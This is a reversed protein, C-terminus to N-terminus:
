DKGNTEKKWWEATRKLGDVLGTMPVKMTDNSRSFSTDGVRKETYRPKRNYDFEKALYAFITNVSTPQQYGIDFTGRDFNKAIFVLQRVFDKVYTYDKAQEGDGFIQVPENKSMAACFNRVLPGEVIQGEGFVNFPRVNLVNERKQTMCEALYKSMGYPSNPEKVCSSTINVLKDYKCENLLRYTGYVNTDFFERPKEFSDPVSRLAALHYVLDYGAGFNSTCIDLGSKQDIKEVWHKNRLAEVLHTGIFGDSGTVLVRAM